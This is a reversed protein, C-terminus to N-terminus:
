NCLVPITIAYVIFAVFRVTLGGAGTCWKYYVTNFTQEGLCCTLWSEISRDIVCVCHESKYSLNECLNRLIIRYNREYTAQAHLLILAFLLSARTKGRRLNSQARAAPSVRSFLITGRRPAVATVDISKNSINNAAM